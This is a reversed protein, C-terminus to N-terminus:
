DRFWPISYIFTLQVVLVCTELFIHISLRANSGNQGLKMEFPYVLLKGYEIESQELFELGFESPDIAM